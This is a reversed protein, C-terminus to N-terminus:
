ALRYRYGARDRGVVAFVENARLCYAMKQARDLTTGAAGALDRTTFVPPLGPPVFSRLDDVTDFRHHSRIERLRRDVTRWGGRGRRLAPDPVQHREVTVLVVEIALNPHDLLTPMSVLEDFLAHIDNRRPSRRAKAGPKVLWTEVAIPHVLRIPHEALLRDLKRAMAAFSVTQIEILQTGRRIDIVFGGLQVEHEDGPLSLAAKLGAHLSSENLTGIGITGSRLRPRRGPEHGRHPLPTGQGPSRCPGGVRGM